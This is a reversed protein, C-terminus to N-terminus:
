EILLLPSSGFIQSGRSIARQRQHRSGPSPHKTINASGNTLVQQTCIALRVYDLCSVGLRQFDDAFIGNVGEIYQILGSGSQLFCVTMDDALKEAIIRISNRNGSGLILVGRQELPLDSEGLVKEQLKRLPIEVGELVDKFVSVLQKHDHIFGAHYVSTSDDFWYLNFGARLFQCTESLHPLIMSLADLDDQLGQDADVFVTFSRPGSQRKFM